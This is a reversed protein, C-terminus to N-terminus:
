IQIRRKRDGKVEKGNAKATKVGTMTDDKGNLIHSRYLRVICAERNSKSAISKRYMKLYFCM